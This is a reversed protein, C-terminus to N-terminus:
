FSEFMWAVGLGFGLAQSMQNGSLLLTREGQRWSVQSILAMLKVVRM